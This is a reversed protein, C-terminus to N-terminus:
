VLSKPVKVSDLPYMVCHELIGAAAGAIMHTGMGLKPPLSEYVDDDEDEDLESGTSNPANPGNLDAMRVTSNFAPSGAVRRSPEVYHEM